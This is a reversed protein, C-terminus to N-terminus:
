DELSLSLRTLVSKAVKYGTSVCAQILYGGTPADWDLMEGCVFWNSQKCLNFDRGVESWDIGGVTSIAEDIGRLSEIELQFCKIKSSLVFSNLYEEKTLNCKLLQMVIKSLKLKLLGESHNKAKKLVLEIQDFTFDPKFDIELLINAEDRFSSCLFYCPGGELGYRTLVVDGKKVKTGLTFQANKIFKGELNGPQFNSLNFGTNSAQFNKVRFGDAAFVNLWSGTSGTKPWSAGGLGFIVYKFEFLVERKNFDTFYLHQKKHSIQVLEHQFHFHVSLSKLLNMWANLVDIPKYDQLPFVRNSSGVYTEIKLEKRLFEIFDQNTFSCVAERIFDHNYKELFISLNEAHTLNFGGKGAVLFKRGATRKHDFLHVECGQQALQTAAMLGAPGLGIIAIRNSKM